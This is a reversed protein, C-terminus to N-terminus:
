EHRPSRLRVEPGELGLEKASESVGYTNANELEEATSVSTHPFQLQRKLETLREYRLLQRNKSHPFDDSGSLQARGDTVGPAIRQGRVQELRCSDHDVIVQDSRLAHQALQAL